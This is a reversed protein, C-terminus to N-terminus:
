KIDESFEITNGFPDAIFVVRKGIAPVSFSRVVNVNRKHLEDMTQDLDEVNFCLHNYGPKVEGNDVMETKNYGFIEVLLNNDNPPALFALQMKFEDNSWEHVLRFDLKERYWKIIADYELTAIGIHGAKIDSLTSIINKEPFTLKGMTDEIEDIITFAHL